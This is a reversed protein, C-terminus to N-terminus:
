YVSRSILFSTKILCLWQSLCPVKSEFGFLLLYNEKDRFIYLAPKKLFKLQHFDEISPFLSDIARLDKYEAGNQVYIEFNSLEYKTFGIKALFYPILKGWMFEYTLIGLIIIVLTILLIKIKKLHKRM